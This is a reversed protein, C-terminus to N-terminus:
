VASGLYAELVVPDSRIASPLGEAIKQGFDMVVIRDVLGMVFDMDHEVLLIGMRDDRLRRLLEALARKEQFRLGAAPEDLLLLCPDAALARAIELIRQEGLPFNGALEHAKNGLAVRDLQHHAEVMLECEETRELHFAARAIGARGRSHAGIAVNELASLHPLLRVHQFTRSMGLRAINHAELGGIPTGLFRVAGATARLEGAILNFMTSKGAGNPGLLALIEGANVHLNM